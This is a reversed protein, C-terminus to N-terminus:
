NLHRNIIDMFEPSLRNTNDIEFIVRFSTEFITNSNRSLYKQLSYLETFLYRHKDEMWKSTFNCDGECIKEAQNISINIQRDSVRCNINRCPNENKLSTLQQTNLYVKIIVNEKIKQKEQEKDIKLISNSDFETEITCKNIAMHSIWHYKSYEPMHKINQKLVNISVRDKSMDLLDALRLIIMLYKESIIDHKANSKLGYVDKTEFGHAESIDAVLKRTLEKIFRLESQNNIFKASRKPHENRIIEEFYENVSNFSGLIFKKIDSNNAVDIDVLEKKFDKKWKSRILDSELNDAKNFYDINPYLVMSVDHLYCALFLIYYDFKKVSLYDISKTIKTCNKILEISHEENHLTYFHLFKSGNKWIGNVFKHILILDDIQQPDTIYKKFYPLVEFLSMDIKEENNKIDDFLIETFIEFNKLNFSYNLRLQMLIRLEYYHIARNDNKILNCSDNIHVSLIYSILSNYIKRKFESSNQYIFEFFGTQYKKLLISAKNNGSNESPTVIQQITHMRKQSNVLLFPEFSSKAYYKLKKYERNEVQQFKIFQELVKSFYNNKFNRELKKEFVHVKKILDFQQKKDVILFKLLMQAEYQFIDDELRNSFREKNFPYLGYDKYFLKINSKDIENDQRYDLIKLRYTFFKKYRKLLIQLECREINKPDNIKKNIFELISQIKKRLTEDELDDFSAKIEFSISSAPKALDFLYDNPTIKNIQSKENNFKVQYSIRNNFEKLFVPLKVNSKTNVSFLKDFRENLDRISSEFNEIEFTTFIVSDDVYYYSDGDFISDTEKAIDIMCLNGFLYSQPLGQPIGVNFFLERKKIEVLNKQNINNEYYCNVDEQSNTFDVKFFLLKNLIKDLWIKDGNDYSYSIRDWIFHYIFLPNVSPFFKELDLNIENTYKKTDFYERNAEIIRKSYDSYKKNWPEFIREVNISPINGYFNSPMLKSVDSLKRTGDSDDFMILNLMSVICIQTILDATHLPRYIEKNEEFRKPKFFVTIEFLENKDFKEKLTEQCRKIVHEIKDGNYKDSLKNYLKIDADSLLEKEFVYSELSYIAKYINQSDLLRDFLNKNM